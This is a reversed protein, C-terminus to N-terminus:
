LVLVGPLRPHLPSLMERNGDMDHDSATLHTSKKILDHLKLAHIKAAIYLIYEWAINVSEQPVM